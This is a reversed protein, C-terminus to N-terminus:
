AELLYVSAARPGQDGDEPALTFRVKSGVSLQSFPVELVSNRHFYVEDGASTALFGYGDNVFMRVVRAHPSHAHTKADGERRQSKSELNRLTADFADRLVSQFDKHSDDLSADRTVFVEGTPATVEVRVAYHNGKRRHHHPMDVIVHFRTIRHAFRELRTARQRIASEIANSQGIGRFTIQIPIQMFWRSASHTGVPPPRDPGSRQAPGNETIALPQDVDQM